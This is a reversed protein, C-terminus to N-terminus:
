LLEKIRVNVPVAAMERAHRENIVDWILQVLHDHEEKTAKNWGSEPRRLSDLGRRRIFATDKSTISRAAQMRKRKRTNLTAVEGGVQGDIKIGKYWFSHPSWHM